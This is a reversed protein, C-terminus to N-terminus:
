VHARGIENGKATCGHAVFLAKEEKAIEALHRAILPRGLATSLLYKDEYVAAAKLAPLIYDQAFEKRLDKIYIKSAGSKIARKRLDAPSFESGLNASFCLVEFGKNKLWPICCSTDLGGSYALIIKKM